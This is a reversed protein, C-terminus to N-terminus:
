LQELLYVDLLKVEFWAVHGLGIYDCLLLHAFYKMLLHMRVAGLDRGVRMCNVFFRLNFVLSLDSICDDSQIFGIM